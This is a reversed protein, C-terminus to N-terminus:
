KKADCMEKFNDETTPQDMLFEVKGTLEKKRSMESRRQGKQWDNLKLGVQKVKELTSGNTENWAEQVKAMCEENDQKGMDVKLWEGFQFPGEFGEPLMTCVEWWHGGLDSLEEESFHLNAMQKAVEDAM